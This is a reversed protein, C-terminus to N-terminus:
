VDGKALIIGAKMIQKKLENLGTSGTVTRSDASIRLDFIEMIDNEFLVSHKKFIEMPIKDFTIGKEQAWKVLKGVVDHSKRFPLGKRTLYDAVDTAFMNRDIASEMRATDFIMTRIVGNMILICDELTKLTDFLPEKDEQMDRCYNFPLGKMVTLLAMLNGYVRGTKGRILELSDPNKKQPMMSSGTSFKDSLKVFGFESSSWIIMDESIRSFHVMFISAASLIEIIYDRDSTADMSNETVGSFGLKKAIFERDVGFGSGAVAGAGLPCKDARKRADKFRERDRELMWFWSMLYHALRIPQAQQLHTYSPVMDNLHTGASDVISKQLTRIDKDLKELTGLIYLREDLAVQDNRSRGTHLKAGTEGILQTLRAEVTMHVDETSNDFVYGPEAMDTEISKKVKKLGSVIKECEESSIIGAKELAEAWVTSGLIDVQLLEIDIAISSGFAVMALAPDEGFRGGWLPKPTKDKM